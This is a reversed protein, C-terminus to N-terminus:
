NSFLDPRPSFPFMNEPLQAVHRQFSGGCNGSLTTKASNSDFYWLKWFIFVPNKLGIFETKPHLDIIGWWQTGETGSRDTKPIM